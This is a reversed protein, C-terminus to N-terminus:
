EDLLHKAVEIEDQDSIFDQISIIERSKIEKYLILTALFIKKGKDYRVNGGDFFKKVTAYSCNAGQAIVKKSGHPLFKALETIKGDSKM